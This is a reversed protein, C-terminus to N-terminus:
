HRRRCAQRDDQGPLLDEGLRQPRRGDAPPWFLRPSHSGRLFHTMDHQVGLTALNCVVFMPYIFREKRRSSTPQCPRLEGFGPLFEPM